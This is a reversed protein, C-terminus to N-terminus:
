LLFWRSHQQLLAPLSIKGDKTGPPGVRLEMLLDRVPQYDLPAAWGASQAARAAESDPPMQLLAEAVRRSLEEPTHRLKAIPWEPYLRTSSLFGFGEHHQRNLVHYDSLDIRGEAAMRELT